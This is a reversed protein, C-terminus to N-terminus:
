AQPKSSGNGVGNAARAPGASAKALPLGQKQAEDKLTDVAQHATERVVTVAKEKIDSVTESVKAQAEALLHDRTSGLTRNEVRTDPLMMGLAIGAAGIM